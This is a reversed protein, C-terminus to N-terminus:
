RSYFEDLKASLSFAVHSCLSVLPNGQLIDISGEKYEPYTNQIYSILESLTAHKDCFVTPSASALRLRM